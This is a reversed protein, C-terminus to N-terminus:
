LDKNLVLEMIHHHDNNVLHIEKILREIMIGFVFAPLARTRAKFALQSPWQGHLSIIIAM